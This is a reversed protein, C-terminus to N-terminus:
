RKQGSIFGTMGEADWEGTFNDGDFELVFYVVFEPSDGVFTLEQGNVEIERLSFSGIDSSANGSYSGPSGSITFTGTVSSGMAETQFDFVGVPDLAAPPPPEPAPRPAEVASGTSQSCAALVLGILFLAAPRKM